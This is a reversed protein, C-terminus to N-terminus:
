QHFLGHVGSPRGRAQYGAHRLINKARIFYEKVPEIQALTSPVWSPMPPPDDIHDYLIVPVGGTYRSIGRFSNLLDQNPLRGNLGEFFIGLHSFSHGPYDINMATWIVGSSLTLPEVELDIITNSLFRYVFTM